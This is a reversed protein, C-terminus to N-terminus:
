GGLTITVGSKDSNEFLVVSGSKVVVKQLCDNFLGSEWTELDYVGQGLTVLSEAEITDWRGAPGWKQFLFEGQSGEPVVILSVIGNGRGNWGPRDLIQVDSRQRLDEALSFEKGAPQSAPQAPQVPLEPAQGQLSPVPTNQSQPPLTAVVEPQSSPVSAAAAFSVKGDTGISFEWGYPEEDNEYLVIVGPQCVGSSPDPFAWIKKAQDNWFEEPRGGYSAELSYYRSGPGSNCLLLFDETAGEQWTQRLEVEDDRVQQWTQDRQVVVCWGEPILIGSANSWVGEPATELDVLVSQCCNTVEEAVLVATPKASATPATAAAAEAVAPVAPLSTATPVQEAPSVAVSTPKPWAFYITAGIAVVAIVMFAIALKKWQKRTM